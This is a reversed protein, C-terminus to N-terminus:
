LLRLTFSKSQKPQPEEYSIALRTEGGAMRSRKVLEDVATRLKVNSILALLVFWALCQKKVLADILENVM